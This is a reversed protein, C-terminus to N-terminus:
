IKLKHDELEELRLAPYFYPQVLVVLHADFALDYYTITGEILVICPKSSNMFVTSSSATSTHRFPPLFLGIPLIQKFPSLIASM